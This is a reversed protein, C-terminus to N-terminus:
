LPHVELDSGGCSPCSEPTISTFGLQTEAAGDFRHFEVLEGAQDREAAPCTSSRCVLEVPYAEVGGAGAPYSSLGTM